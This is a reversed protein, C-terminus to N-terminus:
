LKITFLALDRCFQPDFLPIHGEKEIKEMNLAMSIWGESVFQKDDDDLVPKDKKAGTVHFRLVKAALEDMRKQAQKQLMEETM